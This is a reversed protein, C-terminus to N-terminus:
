NSPSLFRGLFGYVAFCAVPSRGQTVLRRCPPVLAPPLPPIAAFPSCTARSRAPNRWAGPAEPLTAPAGSDLSVLTPPRHREPHGPATPPRLPSTGGCVRHRSGRKCTGARVKMGGERRKGPQRRRWATRIISVMKLVRSFRSTKFDIEQSVKRGSIEFFAASVNWPHSALWCYLESKKKKKELSSIYDSLHKFICLM